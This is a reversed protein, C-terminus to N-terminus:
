RLHAEAQALLHCLVLTAKDVLSKYPTEHTEFCVRHKDENSAQRAHGTSNVQIPKRRYKALRPRRARRNDQGRGDGHPSGPTLPVTVGGSTDSARFTNKPRATFGWVWFVRVGIAWFGRIEFERM